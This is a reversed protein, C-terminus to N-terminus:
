SILQLSFWFLALYYGKGKSRLWKIECIYFIFIPQIINFQSGKLVFYTHQFLKYNTWEAKLQSFSRWIWKSDLQTFVFFRDCSCLDIWKEWGCLESCYWVHTFYLRTIQENLKKATLFKDLNMQTLNFSCLFFIKWLFM